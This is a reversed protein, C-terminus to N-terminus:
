KRGIGMALKAVNAAAEDQDLAVKGDAWLCGAEHIMVAYIPVYLSKEAESMKGELSKALYERLAARMKEQIQPIFSLYSSRCQFDPKRHYDCVALFLQKVSEEDFDVRGSTREAIVTEASVGHIYEFLEYKDYFHAYFTARNVKARSTLDTITMKDLDKENILSYFADVLSQKTHTMRQNQVKTAM